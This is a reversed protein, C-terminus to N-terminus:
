SPSMVAIAAGAGVRDAWQGLPKAEIRITTEVLWVRSSSQWRTALRGRTQVNGDTLIVERGQKVFYYTLLQGPTALGLLLAGDAADQVGLTLCIEAAVGVVV